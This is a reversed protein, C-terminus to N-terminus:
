QFFSDIFHGSFDCTLIPRKLVHSYATSLQTQSKQSGMPQLGGPEETWLIKQALISSHNGSGEGPSRGSGSISSSDGTDGANCAFEKGSLWWPLGTDIILSMCILAVPDCLTPCLQAVLVCM